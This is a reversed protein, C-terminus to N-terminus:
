FKFGMSDMKGGKQQQKRSHILVVGAEDVPVLGFESPIRAYDRSFKKLSTDPNKWWTSDALACDTKDKNAGDYVKRHSPLSPAPPKRPVSAKPKTPSSSRQINSLPRPSKPRLKNTSICAIDLEASPETDPGDNLRASSSRHLRGRVAHFVDEGDDDDEEEFPTAKRKILKNADVRSYEEDGLEVSARDHLHSVEADIEIAEPGSDESEWERLRPKCPSEPIVRPLVSPPEPTADTQANDESDSDGDGEGEAEIVVAQLNKVTLNRRKYQPFKAHKDFYGQYTDPTKQRRHCRQIYNQYEAEERAIFDDWLMSKKMIGKNRLSQLRCCARRFGELSGTYSKYAQQFKYYIEETQSSFSVQVFSRKSQRISTSASTESIRPVKQPSSSQSPSEDLRKRKQNTEHLNVPPFPAEISQLVVMDQSANESSSKPVQLVSPPAKHSPSDIDGEVPVQSTVTTGDYNSSSSQPISNRIPSELRTSQASALPSKRRSNQATVKLTTPVLIPTSDLLSPESDNTNRHHASPTEPGNPSYSHPEQFQQSLVTETVKTPLPSRNIPEEGGSEAMPSGPLVNGEEQTSTYLDRPVSLEIESGEYSDDDSFEKTKIISSLIDTDESNAPIDAPNTPDSDPTSRHSRTLRGRPRRPPSSDLPVRPVLSPPWQDLGLEDDPLQSEPSSTIETDLSAVADAKQPTATSISARAKHKESWEQILEIPVYNQPVRMGTNPTIWSDASELLSLQSKPIVVDRRYIRSWGSFFGRNSGLEPEPDGSHTRRSLLVTDRQHSSIPGPSAIKQYSHPSNIHVKRKSGGSSSLPYERPSAMTPSPTTSRSCGTVSIHKSKAKVSGAVPKIDIKKIAGRSLSSGQTSPSLPKSKTNEGKPKLNILLDETKSKPFSISDENGQAKPTQAVLHTPAQTHWMDEQASSADGDDDPESKERDCANDSGPLSVISKEGLNDSSSDNPGNLERSHTVRKERAWRNGLEIVAKHHLINIPSGCIGDGECGEVKMGEIYLSIEPPATRSQGITIYFKSIKLICGTLTKRFDSNNERDYNLCSSESFIAHIKTFRDSLLARPVPEKALWKVLQACKPRKVPIRFNSEDNVTEGLEKSSSEEADISQRIAAEVLPEIWSRILDM